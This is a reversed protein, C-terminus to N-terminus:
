LYFNISNCLVLAERTYLSTPRRLGVRLSQAASGAFKCQSEAFVFCQAKTHFACLVSIIKYVIEFVNVHLFYKWKQLFYHIIKKFIFPMKLICM